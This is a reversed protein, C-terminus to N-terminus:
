RRIIINKQTEKRRRNKEVFIESGSFPDIGTYYMLTSWTSPAPTFIQVQEPNMRLESKIYKKLETMDKETCGPHAAMFYYTLYLRKRNRKLIAKFFNIFRALGEVEPKGMLDLVAPVSHEPALKLQGSVHGRVLTELYKQGWASDHLVLDHRIGSAVFIMKVGNIEAARRLLNIQREHNVKLRSCVDPFLCRKNPCQKDLTRGCELGYMNATPGGLDPIIGKFDPHRVIEKIEKLISEESRSVVQRGQHVHIACFNCEGPCGRHTVVSFRMTEMARVEGMASYFPHVSREYPLNHVRDLEEPSLPAAPPNHVLYREGHRQVLGRAVSHESNKYLGNFMRIFSGKEKVVEEFSPIEFFGAPKKPVAYCIGQIGSVDEGAHLSRAIELAQREGMGYVLLDAKADFLVSRRISDSWFDYHATRRLSAEIGGLVIPVTNKFYRRILNTYAILARDPRRNNTVGPTLDCKKRFKGSATYNSIMSDASGASIGWFLRPEGLRSIDRDSGPDPQAIIGVRYGADSLVHGIVSVGILPSDIYTDGSILIIDLVDRGSKKMEDQTTPLFM